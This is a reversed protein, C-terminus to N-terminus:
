DLRARGFIRERTMHTPALRNLYRPSPTVLLFIAPPSGPDRANMGELGKPVAVGKVIVCGPPATVAKRISTEGRSLAENEPV